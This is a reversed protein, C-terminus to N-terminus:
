FGGRTIKELNGLYKNFWNDKGKKFLDWPKIGKFPNPLRIAGGAVMDLEDCGLEGEEKLSAKYAAALDNLEEPSFDLGAAQLNKATSELDETFYQEAEGKEIMDRLLEYKNM